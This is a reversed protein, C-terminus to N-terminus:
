DCVYLFSFFFYWLLLQLQLQELSQIPNIGLALSKFRIPVFLLCVDCLFCPNQCFIPDEVIRYLNWCLSLYVWWKAHPNRIIKGCMLHWRMSNTGRKKEKGNLWHSKFVLKLTLDIVDKSKQFIDIQKKTKNTPTRDNLITLSRLVSCTEIILAINRTFSNQLSPWDISAYIM